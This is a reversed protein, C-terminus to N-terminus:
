CCNNTSRAPSLLVLPYNQFDDSHWKGKAKHRDIFEMFELHMDDVGEPGPGLTELLDNAKELADIFDDM